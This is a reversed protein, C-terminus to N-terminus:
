LRWVTVNNPLDRIRPMVEKASLGGNGIGPFNLYVRLHKWENEALARLRQASLTILDLRALDGWFYKVQFIGLAPRSRDPHVLVGYDEQGHVRKYNSVLSGFALDCGPYLQVAQLAAGRGMVLRGDRRVTSNTTVLIVDPLRAAFMNGKRLMM